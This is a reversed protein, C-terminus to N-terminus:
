RFDIVEVNEHESEDFVFYSDQLNVDPNFDMVKYVYVNGNRDFMEWKRLANDGKNIEMRIKFFQGDKDEPILEVVNYVEGDRVAEGILSYKYGSKYLDYIKSPSVQETEPDYDTVNVEQVDELYTWLTTGDNIIEQGGMKLRYMDGKVAIEGTFEENIDEVKNELKHVIKANFASTNKYKESMADLINRAQPDYQAKLSSLTSIILAIGLLIKKM